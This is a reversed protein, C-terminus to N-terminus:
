LSRAYYTSYVWDDGTEIGKVINEIQYEVEPDYRWKLNSGFLRAMMQWFFATTGSRYEKILAFASQGTERDILKILIKGQAFSLKRLQPEFQEFLEKELREMYKKQDKRSGQAEMETQIKKVVGAAAKALPYVRYVNHRLRDIRIQEREAARREQKTTIVGEIVIEELRYSYISDKPAPGQAHVQSGALAGFVGMWLGMSRGVLRRQMGWFYVEAGM